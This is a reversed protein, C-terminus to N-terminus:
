MFEAEIYFLGLTKVWNRNWHNVILVCYECFKWIFWVFNTMNPRKKLRNTYKQYAIWHCNKKIVYFRNLLDILIQQWIIKKMELPSFVDNEKTGTPTTNGTGLSFFISSPRTLGWKSTVVRTAGLKGNVNAFSVQYVDM